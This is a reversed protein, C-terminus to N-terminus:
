FGAVRFLDGDALPSGGICQVPAGQHRRGASVAASRCCFLRNRPATTGLILIAGTWHLLRLFYRWVRGAPQMLVSATENFTSEGRSARFKSCCARSVSQARRPIWLRCKRSPMLPTVLVALVCIALAGLLFRM